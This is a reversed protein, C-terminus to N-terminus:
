GAWLGVPPLLLLACLTLLQVRALYFYPLADLWSRDGERVPCGATVVGPTAM